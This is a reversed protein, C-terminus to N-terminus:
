CPTVVPAGRASSARKGRISSSGPVSPGLGPGRSSESKHMLVPPGRLTQGSRMLAQSLHSSRQPPSGGPPVAPPPSVRPDAGDSPVPQPICAWDQSLYTSKRRRRLDLAPLFGLAVASLLWWGLVPVGPPCPGVLKVPLVCGDLSLLCGLMEGEVGSAFRLLSRRRPGTGQGPSM